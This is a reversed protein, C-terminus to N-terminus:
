ANNEQLVLRRHRKQVQRIRDTVHKLVEQLGIDVERDSLNAVSLKAGKQVVCYLQLDKFAMKQKRGALSYQASLEPKMLKSMMRRTVDNGNKGGILTLQKTQFM